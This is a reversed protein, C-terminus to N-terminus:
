SSSTVEQTSESHSEQTPTIATRISELQKRIRTEIADQRETMATISPALAERVSLRIANRIYSVTEDDNLMNESKFSPPSDQGLQQPLCLLDLLVWQIM